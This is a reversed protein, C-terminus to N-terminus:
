LICSGRYRRRVAAATPGCRRSSGRAASRAPPSTARDPLTASAAIAWAAFIRSLSGSAAGITRSSGHCAIRVRGAPQRSGGAGQSGQCHRLAPDNRRVTALVLGDVRRAMLEDILRMQRKADSGVDAVITSYGDAALAEGVGSIIPSFVPNAIDPVLVGVLKSRRTRLSAAIPNRRYGLERAVTEVRAVVADAILHRRAPDLARSVTSPHVQAREAMSRLTISQDAM